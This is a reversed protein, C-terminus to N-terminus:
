LESFPDKGRHDLRPTSESMSTDCLLRLPENGDVQAVSRDLKSLIISFLLRRQPGKGVNESSRTDSKDPPFTNWHTLGGRQHVVQVHSGMRPLQKKESDGVGEIVALGELEDLRVDVELAVEVRVGLELTVGLMLLVPVELELGLGVGVADNLAVNEGLPLVVAVDLKVGVVVELELRVPLALGVAVRVGETVGLTENADLMARERLTTAKGRDLELLEGLLVDLEDIDTVREDLALTVVLVDIVALMDELSMEVIDALRVIVGVALTVSRLNEIVRLTVGVSLEETDELGRSLLEALRLREALLELESLEETLELREANDGVRLGSFGSPGTGLEDTNLRETLAGFGV